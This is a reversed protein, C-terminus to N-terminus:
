GVTAERWGGWPAQVQLGWGSAWRRAYAEVMGFTQDRTRNTRSKLDLTNGLHRVKKEM